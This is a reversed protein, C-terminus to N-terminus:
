KRRHRRIKQINKDCEKCYMACPFSNVKRCPKESKENKLDESFSGKLSQYNLGYNGYKTETSLNALLLPLKRELLEFLKELDNYSIGSTKVGSNRRKKVKYMTKYKQMDNRDHKNFYRTNIKNEYNIELDQCSVDKTTRKTNYNGM